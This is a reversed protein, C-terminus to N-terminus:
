NIPPPPSFQCSHIVFIWFLVPVEPFMKSGVKEIRVHCYQTYPLTLFFFHNINIYQYFLHIAQIYQLDSQIFADALHM